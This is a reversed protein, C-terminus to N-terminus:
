NKCKNESWEDKLVSYLNYDGLVGNVLYYKRLVGEKTFGLREAVSCSAPNRVDCCIAIRELGYEHFGINALERVARTMIGKGNYAKDLWYAIETRKESHNLNMFDLVGVVQEKYVITLHLTKDKAFLELRSKIYAKTDEVEKTEEVWPFREAFFDRNRDIIEFLAQAHKPMTLELRLENDIERYFM